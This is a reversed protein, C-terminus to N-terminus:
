RTEEGPAELTEVDDALMRLDAIRVHMERIQIEMADVARQLRAADERPYEHLRKSRAM